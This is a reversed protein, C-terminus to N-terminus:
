PEAKGRRDLFAPLDTGDLKPLVDVPPELDDVADFADKEEQSMGDGDIMARMEATRENQAAVFEPQGTLGPAFTVEDGAEIGSVNSAMVVDDSGIDVFEGPKLNKMPGRRNVMDAKYSLIETGPPADPSINKCSVATLAAEAVSDPNTADYPIFYKVSVIFGPQSM